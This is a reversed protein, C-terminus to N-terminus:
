TFLFFIFIQNRTSVNQPHPTYQTYQDQTEALSNDIMVLSHVVVEIPASIELKRELERNEPVCVEWQCKLM